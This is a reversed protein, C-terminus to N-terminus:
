TWQVTCWRSLQIFLSWSSTVQKIIESNVAWCTEFTLVDMKLLKRSITPKNWPNYQEPVIHTPTVTHNPQPPTTDKHLSFCHTNTKRQPKVPTTHYGSASQLVLTNYWLLVVWSIVWCILRLNGLISTHADSAHQANFLSIFFWTVDLQDRKIWCVKRMKASAHLGAATGVAGGVWNTSTAKVRPTFRVVWWLTWPQSHSSSYRGEGMRRQPRCLATKRWTGVYWLKNRWYM